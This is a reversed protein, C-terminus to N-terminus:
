KKEHIAKIHREMNASCGFSKDCYSCKHAKVNLHVTKLHMGLNYKRRFGKDCSKCKYPKLKEPNATKVDMQKDIRVKSHLNRSHINLQIKLKFKKKCTKCQHSKENHKKNRLPTKNQPSNTKENKDDTGMIYSCIVENELKVETEELLTTQINEAPKKCKIEIHSKLHELLETVKKYSKPCVKCYHKEPLKEM